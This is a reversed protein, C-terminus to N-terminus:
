YRTPLLNTTGLEHWTGAVITIMAINPIALAVEIKFGRSLGSIIYITGRSESQTEQRLM